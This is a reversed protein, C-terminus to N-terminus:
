GAKLLTLIYFNFVQIDLVKNIFYSVRHAQQARTMGQRWGTSHGPQHIYRMNETSRARECVAATAGVADLVLAVTRRPNM